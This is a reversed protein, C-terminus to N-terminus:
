QYNKPMKKLFLGHGTKHKALYLGSGKKGLAIAEMARNHRQSEKLNKTAARADNVAKAIGAAGGSLAGLASLGAFIPILPLVGGVKPVPIVRPLKVKKRGGVQKITIRAAKLALKINEKTPIGKGYNKVHKKIKNLICSKFPKAQSRKGMGLKRKAKMVNTVLWAASKEGFSSDKAKVREWARNELVKDAQHRKHLEKNKSYEIDHEKCAADLKNIPQDGRALREALKTGLGCYSYGPLHLEFPLKNIASNLLGKGKSTEM